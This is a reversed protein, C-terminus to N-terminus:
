KDTLTITFNRDALLKTSTFIVKSGSVSISQRFIGKGNNLAKFADAIKTAIDSTTETGILSVTVKHYFYPSGDTYLVEITSPTTWSQKIELENVEAAGGTGAVGKSIEMGTGTIGTSQPDEFTILLNKDMAPSPELFNVTYGGFGLDYDVGVEEHLKSALNRAIDNGKEGSKVSLQVERKKGDDVIVKITGDKSATGNLVLYNLEQTGGTPREGKTVEKANWKQVM